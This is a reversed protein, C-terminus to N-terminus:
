EQPGPVFRIALERSAPFGTEEADFRVSHTGTAAAPHGPSRRIELALRGDAGTARREGPLWPLGDAFLAFGRDSRYHASLQGHAQALGELNLLRLESTALPSQPSVAVSVPLLQILDRIISGNENMLAILSAIGAPVDGRRVSVKVRLNAALQPNVPSVQEERASAEEALMARWRMGDPPAPPADGPLSLGRSRPEPIPEGSLIRVAFSFDAERVELLPLPIMSLTPIRVVETNPYGNREREIGFAVMRLAGWDNGPTGAPKNFGFERLYRVFQRAAEFDAGITANIPASFLQELNFVTLPTETAM